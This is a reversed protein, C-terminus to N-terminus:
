DLKKFRRRKKRTMKIYVSSADSFNTATIWGKQGEKDWYGDGWASVRNSLGDVAQKSGKFGMKSRVLDIQNAINWCRRDFLDLRINGKECRQNIYSKIQEETLNENAKDPLALKWYIINEKKPFSIYATGMGGDKPVTSIQWLGIAGFTEQAIYVKRQSERVSIAVFCSALEPTFLGYQVLASYLINPEVSAHNATYDKTFENLEIAREARDAPLGVIGPPYGASKPVRFFTELQGNPGTYIGGRTAAFSFHIHNNHAGSTDRKVKLHGLNPYKTAIISTSNNYTDYEEGTYSASIAMYDPVLHQPMANFKTLLLHLQYDYGQKSNINTIRRLYKREVQDMATQYLNMIDFARGFAHDTISNGQAGSSRPKSGDTGDQRFTGFGGWYGDITLPPGFSTSALAMLCEILSASIFAKESASRVLAENIKREITDATGEYLKSNPVDYEAALNNDKIDFFFGNKLVNIDGKSLRVHKSLLEGRQSYYTKQLDTLRSSLAVDMYKTAVAGPASEYDQWVHPLNNTGVSYAASKSATNYTANLATSVDKFLGRDSGQRGLGSQLLINAAVAEAEEGDSTLQGELMTTLLGKYNEKILNSRYVNQYVPNKFLYKGSAASLLDPTTLTRGTYARQSQSTAVVAKGNRPVINNVISMTFSKSDNLSNKNFEYFSTM